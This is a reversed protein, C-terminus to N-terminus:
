ADETRYLALAKLCEHRHQEGLNCAIKTNPLRLGYRIGADECELVWRTLRSLAQELPLRSVAEWDLWRDRAHGSCFLKTLLTGDVPFQKWSIRKPSDGPHYDRFGHFDDIADEQPQGADGDGTWEPLPADQEPAPYVLCAAQPCLWSWARAIGFPYDTQLRFRGLQVYGRQRAPVKLWVRATDNAPVDTRASGHDNVAEISCRDAGSDASLLVQFRAHEGCFVPQGAVARVSLRALNNNAHILSLVAMGALLFTVAFGISNNYNISGFLMVALVLGLLLGFANPLIYIRRRTIRVPQLEPESLHRLSLRAAWQPM